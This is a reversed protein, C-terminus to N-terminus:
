KVFFCILCKQLKFCKQVENRKLKIVKKDSGTKAFIEGVSSRLDRSGKKPIIRILVKEMPM